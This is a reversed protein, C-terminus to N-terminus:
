PLRKIGPSNTLVTLSIPHILNLRYGLRNDCM